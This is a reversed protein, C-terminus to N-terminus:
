QWASMISTFSHLGYMEVLGNNKIQYKWAWPLILTNGMHLKVITTINLIPHQISVETASKAWIILFQYRNTNTIKVNRVSIHMFLFVTDFLQTCDVISDSIIVPNKELLIDDTLSKLPTQVIVFEKPFKTKGIMFLLVLICLSVM